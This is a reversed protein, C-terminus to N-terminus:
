TTTRRRDLQLRFFVVLNAQRLNFGRVSVSRLAPALESRKYVRELLNSYYRAAHQFATSSSNLLATQLQPAGPSHAGGSVQLRGDLLIDSSRADIRMAGLYIALGAICLVAIVVLAVALALFVDVPRAERTAWSSGGQLVPFFFRPIFITDGCFWALLFFFIILYM